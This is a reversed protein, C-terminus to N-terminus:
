IKINEDKHKFIEIISLLVTILLFYYVYIALNEAIENQKLIMNFPIYLLLNMAIISAYRSDISFIISFGLYMWVLSNYNKMDFSLILFALMIFVLLNFM